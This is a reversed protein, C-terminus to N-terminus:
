LDGRGETRSPEHPVSEEHGRAAAERSAIDASRGRNGAFYFIGVVVAVVFIAAAIGLVAIM